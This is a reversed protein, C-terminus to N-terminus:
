YELHAREALNFSFSHEREKREQAHHLPMIGDKEM